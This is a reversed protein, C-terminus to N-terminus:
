LKRISLVQSQERDPTYVRLFYVGYTYNSTNLQIVDGPFVEKHQELGIVRGTVDQIEIWFEKAGDIDFKINLENDVPNPYATISWNIEQPNIGTGFDFPQQFGQTLIMDGGSLTTTALEGLTWAISMTETEAYSGASALVSPELTIQSYGSISLFVLVFLSIIKNM